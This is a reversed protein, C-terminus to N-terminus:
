LCLGSIANSYRMTLKLLSHFEYFNIIRYHKDLNSCLVTSLSLLDLTSSTNANYCFCLSILSKVQKKWLIRNSPLLIPSSTSSMLEFVVLLLWHQPILAFINPFFDLFNFKKPCIFRIQEFRCLYMSMFDISIEKFLQLFNVNVLLM